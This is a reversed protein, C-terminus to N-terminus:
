KSKRKREKILVYGLFVSFGLVSGIIGVKQLPTSYKLYIEHEGVDIEIAMYRDNARYLTVEEGDVYATWGVSYPITLCLMKPSEVKITGSIRDTGIEVKDLTETKLKMIDKSYNDM